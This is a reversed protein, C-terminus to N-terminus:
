MFRTEHVRRPLCLIVVLRESHRQMKIPLFLGLRNNPKIPSHFDSPNYPTYILAGSMCLFFTVDALFTLSPCFTLLTDSCSDTYCLLIPCTFSCVMASIILLVFYTIHWPSLDPTILHPYAGLCFMCLCACGSLQSFTLFFHGYMGIYTTESLGLCESSFM